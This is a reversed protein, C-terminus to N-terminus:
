GIGSIVLKYLCVKIATTKFHVDPVNMCDSDSM